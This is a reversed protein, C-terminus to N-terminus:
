WQLVVPATGYKRERAFIYRRFIEKHEEAHIEKTLGAVLATRAPSVHQGLALRCLIYQRTEWDNIASAFEFVIRRCETEETTSM